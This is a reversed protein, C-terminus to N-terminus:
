KREYHLQVIGSEYSKSEILKLDTQQNEGRFLPIGAGLIIPFVTLIFEDILNEQLFSEILGGGGMLWINKGKAERLSEVFARIDGSIFEFGEAGSEQSRSFVYYTMGKYADPAGGLKLTAEYTKRGMLATDISKFFNTMGFDGDAALWDLSGNPRAIYGDLSHAIFLKVKRM